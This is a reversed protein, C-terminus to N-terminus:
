KRTLECHMCKGLKFRIDFGMSELKPLNEGCCKRLYGYMKYYLIVFFYTFQEEFANEFSYSYVLNGNEKMAGIIVYKNLCVVAKPLYTVLNNKNKNEEYYNVLYQILTDEKIGNFGFIIGYIDSNLETSSYINDLGNEIQEKDLYSKVEIVHTVSQSLVVAYGGEEYISGFHNRDFVIIDVQASSKEEGYLFGSATSLATPAIKKIYSELIKERQLGTASRNRFYELVRESNSTMEQAILKFAKLSHIM